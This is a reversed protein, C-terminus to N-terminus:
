LAAYAVRRRRDCAGADDYPQNGGDDRRGRIGHQVLLKMEDIGRKGRKGAGSNNGDQSNGPAEDYRREQEGGVILPRKLRLELSPQLFRPTPQYGGRFRM